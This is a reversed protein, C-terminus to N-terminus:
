RVKELIENKAKEGDEKTCKKEFVMRGPSGGMVYIRDSLILAEDVDHTIVLTAIRKEKVKELFWMQMDKRTMADLASFPEDALLVKKEYLFTRALAARQRMGGSLEGPHHNAYEALSFEELQAMALKKADKKNMGKLVLPIMVNKVVTKFPLLLDEQQMYGIMGSKGTVCEGEAFVDGGDPPLLGALINFLTSKGVGSVGLLSVIEGEKVHLSIDELVKRQGYSKSIGEAKLVEM